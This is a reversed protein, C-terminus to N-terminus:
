WRWSSYSCHVSSGSLFGSFSDSSDPGGCGVYYGAPGETVTARNAPEWTRKVVTIIVPINSACMSPYSFNAFDVKDITGSMENASAENGYAKHVGHALPKPTQATAWVAVCLLLLFLFCSLLSKSLKAIDAATPAAPATLIAALPTTSV